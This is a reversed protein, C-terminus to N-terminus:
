LIPLPAMDHKQFETNIAEVLNKYAKDLEDNVIVQDFFDPNRKVFDFEKTATALRVRVTEEDDAGRGVIRKQLEELPATIFLYSATLGQKPGADKVKQAGQVDIEVLCTKGEEQVRKIAAFSTGYFNGHVECLELFEGADRM